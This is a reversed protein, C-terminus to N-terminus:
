EIGDGGCSHCMGDGQCDVCDPNVMGTIGLCDSCEGNGHCVECDDGKAMVSEVHDLILVILVGLVRVILACAMVM